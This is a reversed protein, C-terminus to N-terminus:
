AQAQWLAALAEPVDGFAHIVRGAGLSDAPIESYGYSVVVSPVGAARASEVDPTSDGVLATRSHGTGLADLLHAAAPKKMTTREPGVIRAFHHAVGLESMLRDALESPKNTCVSLVAGQAQMWALTDAVGPFLRSDAAIDDRYIEIFRDFLRNAEGDEIKRGARVFAREILARAGRGVMMRVDAVPVPPLGCPQTVANLVRVLDPATDVLTGDLDFAISATAFLAAERSELMFEVKEM